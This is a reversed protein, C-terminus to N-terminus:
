AGAQAASVAGNGNQERRAAAAVSRSSRSARWESRVKRSPSCICTVIDRVRLCMRASGACDMHLHGITCQPRCAKVYTIGCENGLQKGIQHACKRMVHHVAQEVSRRKSGYFFAGKEMLVDTMTGVELDGPGCSVCREMALLIHLDRKLEDPVNSTCPPKWEGSKPCRGTATPKSKREALYDVTVMSSLLGNEVCLQVAKLFRLVGVVGLGSPPRRVGISSKFRCHPPAVLVCADDGTDYESESPTRDLVLQHWFPSDTALALQERLVSIAQVCAAHLKWASPGLHQLRIAAANSVTPGCHNFMITLFASSIGYKALQELLVRPPNSCVKKVSLFRRAMLAAADELRGSSAAVLLITEIGDVYESLAAKRKKILDLAYRDYVRQCAGTMQARDGSKSLLLRLLEHRIEKKAVYFSDGESGIFTEDEGALSECGSELASAFADLSSALADELLPEPGFMAVLNSYDVFRGANEAIFAELTDPKHRKMPSGCAREVPDISEIATNFNDIALATKLCNGAGRIGYFLPSWAGRTHGCSNPFM